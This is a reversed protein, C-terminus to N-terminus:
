IAFMEMLRILAPGLLVILISPFIFFLLPFLMKVPAKMSKERARQKRKDRMQDSQIRLIKGIAVGLEDAQIISGVLTTLDPVSCRESMRRLADRRTKGMRLEKLTFAFETALPGDAEAAVRDIAGDFSLGAEVSVTILDLIDPLESVIKARRQKSRAMLYYRLLLQTTLSFMLVFSMARIFEIEFMLMVQALMIPIILGTLITMLRWERFSVRSTLGAEALKKSLKTNMHDPMLKSVLAIVKDAFFKAARSLIVGQNEDTGHDINVDGSIDMLRNQIRDAAAMRRYAGWWTLSFVSLFVFLVIILM